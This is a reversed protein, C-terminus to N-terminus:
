TLYNYIYSLILIKEFFTLLTICFRQTINMWGFRHTFEVKKLRQIRGLKRVEVSEFPLIIFNCESVGRDLLLGYGCPHDFLRYQNVGNGMEM